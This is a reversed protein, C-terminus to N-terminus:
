EEEKEGSEPISKTRAWEILGLAGWTTMSSPRYIHGAVRENDLGMAEYLVVWGTLIQGPELDINEELVTHIREQEKSEDSM